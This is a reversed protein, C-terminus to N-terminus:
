FSKTVNEYANINEVLATLSFKLLISKMLRSYLRTGLHETVEYSVDPWSWETQWESQNTFKTVM